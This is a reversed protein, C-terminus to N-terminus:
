YTLKIYGSVPINVRQLGTVLKEGKVVNGYTDFYEVKRPAKQLEVIPMEEGTANIIYIDRDPVGAEVMVREQYVTIIREENNEAELIPYCAEPHYPKFSGHL